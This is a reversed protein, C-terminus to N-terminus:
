HTGDRASPSAPTETRRPVIAKMDTRWWEWVAFPDDREDVPGRAEPATSRTSELAAAMPRSWAEAIRQGTALWDSWLQRTFEVQARSMEPLTRCNCLTAPLEMWARARRSMLRATECQCHGIAAMVEQSQEAALAVSSELAKATNPFDVKEHESRQM